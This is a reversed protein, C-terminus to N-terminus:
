TTQTDTTTNATPDPKEEQASWRKDPCSASAFKTKAPMFCGCKKCTNLTTNLQDCSKCIAFRLLRVEENVTKLMNLM